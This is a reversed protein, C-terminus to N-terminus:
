PNHSFDIQEAGRLMQLAFGSSGAAGAGVQKELAGLLKHIDLVRLGGPRVVNSNANPNRPDFVPLQAGTTIQKQKVVRTTVQGNDDVGLEIGEQPKTITVKDPVGNFLCLLVDPGLHDIRLPAVRAGGLTGTVQLGRFGSVVPSRLLLGSILPAVVVAMNGIGSVIMPHIAAEQSTGIGISLAGDTLAGTWNPDVYFFRISGAPLMQADPVLHVFPVGVLIQLQGLWKAVASADPDDMLESALTAHFSPNAVLARLSDAPRPAAARAARAPTLPRLLDAKSADRIKAAMGGAFLKALDNFGDHVTGRAAMKDLTMRAKKRVRMLAMTFAEDALALSRGIQWAAALSLDTV